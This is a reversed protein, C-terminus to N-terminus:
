VAKEGATALFFQAVMGAVKTIYYQDTVMEPETEMYTEHLDNVRSILQEATQVPMHASLNLDGDIGPQGERSVMYDYLRYEYNVHERITGEYSSNHTWTFFDEIYHLLCGYKLFFFFFHQSKGEYKRIKKFVQPSRDEWTHGRLYTYVLIDPLISGLLIM